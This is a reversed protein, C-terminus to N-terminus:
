QQHPPSGNSNNGGSSPVATARSKSKGKGGSSRQTEKKREDDLPFVLLDSAVSAIVDFDGFFRSLPNLRSTQTWFYLSIAQCFHVYMSRDMLGDILDDM